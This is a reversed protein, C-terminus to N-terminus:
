RPPRGDAKEQLLKELTLHELTVDDPARFVTDPPPTEFDTRIARMTMPLGHANGSLHLLAGRHYCARIRGDPQEYCETPYGLIRPGAGRPQWGREVVLWEPYATLVGRRQATLLGQETVDATGHEGRRRQWDYAVTRAGDRLVVLRVPPAGAMRPHPFRADIRLATERGARRAQMRATGIQGGSLEYDVTWHVAADRAAAGRAAVEQKAGTTTPDPGDVAVGAPECAASGM